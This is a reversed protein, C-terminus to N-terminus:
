VSNLVGTCQEAIPHRGHGGRDPQVRQRGRARTETPLHEYAGGDGEQVGVAQLPQRHAPDGRVEADRDPGEVPVDGRLVLQQLQGEVVHQPLRRRRRARPLPAASQRRMRLPQSLEQQAVRPCQRQHAPQRVDPRVRHRQGVGGEADRRAGSERVRGGDDGREVVLHDAGRERLGPEPVARDVEPSSSRSAAYRADVASSCGAAADAIRAPAASSTVARDSRRKPNARSQRSSPRAARSGARGHDSITTM